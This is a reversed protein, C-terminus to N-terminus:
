GALARLKSVLLSTPRAPASLWRRELEEPPLPRDYLYGQMAHCGERWLAAAQAETEVGEAVVSLDLSRALAIIARVIAAQGPVTLTDRVFARDIKLVDLPLFSLYSLSSYGTGFDDVALRVGAAHLAELVGRGGAADEMVQRETLEVELDAGSLGAAALAALIGDVLSKHRFQTASLNVAVRLPPYGRDRWTRMQACAERLVWDGLPIILGTDEALPIFRDPELLGREPHQWRVLAEVGCLAGAHDVQPQYHLRLEGDRELARRLDSELALRIRSHANMAPAYFHYGGPQHQKAHRMAASANATLDAACGGDGPHLAIGISAGLTVEQGDIRYPQALEAALRAAVRAAEDPNHLDQLLVAFEDGGWRALEVEAGPPRDRAVCDCARLGNFLREATQRLLNDGAAHGLSENIRLFRDLGLHLVALQTERRQALPIARQVQEDFLSRNPLGTLSDYLSLFRITEESERRETIDQVTGLSRLPDGAPTYVTLGRQHVWKIAGGPLLLRHVLDYERRKSISGWFARHVRERDEPHVRALSDEFTGAFDAPTQEFIRFVEESWTLAGSAHDLSWSGLHAIRQAEALSAQSAALAELTQSARLLFRARQALVPWNIPKAIFDTAGCEFARRISDADELGTMMLVPVRRFQPQARLWGCFGFGDVDPMVVDLLILDPLKERVSTMAVRGNAAERIRYGDQQLTQAILLRGVPDDDVILVDAGPMDDRM